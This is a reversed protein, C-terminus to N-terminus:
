NRCVVAHAYHLLFAKLCVLSCLQTNANGVPCSHLTFLLLTLSHTLNARCTIPWKPSPGGLLWKCQYPCCFNVAFDILDV